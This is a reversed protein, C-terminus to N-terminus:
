GAQKQGVPPLRGLLAASCRRVGGRAFLVQCSVHIEAERAQKMCIRPCLPAPPGVIRERSGSVFAAVRVAGTTRQPAHDAQRGGHEGPHNQPPSRTYVAHPASTLRDTSHHAGTTFLTRPRPSGTPAATPEPHLCRAPGLHAPRHQPPSRTYVAHLASTLRDTSRHAGPTFLTRPQPEVTPPCRLNRTGPSCRRDPQSVLRFPGPLVDAPQVWTVGRMLVRGGGKVRRVWRRVFADNIQSVIGTKIM